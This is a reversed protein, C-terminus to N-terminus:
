EGKAKKLVYVLGDVVGGVIELFAARAFRDVMPEIFNPIAQIDMPGLLEDYLKEAASMVVAKKEENTGDLEKAIETFAAMCKTVIKWVESLTLTKDTTALKVENIVMDIETKVIEYLGM